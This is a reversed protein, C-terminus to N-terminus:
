NEGAILLSRPAWSVPKNNNGCRGCASFQSFSKCFADARVDLPYDVCLATFPREPYRVAPRSAMSLRWLRMWGAM